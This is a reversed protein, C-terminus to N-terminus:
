HNISFHKEPNHKNLRASQVSEGYRLHVVQIQTPLIEMFYDAFVRVSHWKGAPMGFTMIQTEGQQRCSQMRLKVRTNNVHVKVHRAFYASLLSRQDNDCFVGQESIAGDQSSVGMASQLDDLFVTMSITSGGAEESHRIEIVSIYFEHIESCGSTITPQLVGYVLLFYPALIM